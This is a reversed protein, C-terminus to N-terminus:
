GLTTLGIANKIRESFTARDYEGYLKQRLIFSPTANVNEFLASRGAHGDTTLDWVLNMLRNKERGSIMPQALILELREGLEAHDFDSESFRMVLGQGCLEQIIHVVEGYNDLAYARTASIVNVDPLLIGEESPTALMEAAIVGARLIQAYQIVKGVADRAMPVSTVDLAEIVLQALGAFIEAKVCLRDLVNWHEGRSVQSYFTQSQLEPAGLGFVRDRPVFVDDLVVLSDMEDGRAAVPHDYRTAHPHATTERCVLKLGPSAVPITTWVSEQPRNTFITSVLIENAYVAISGATRAGSLWVGEDTERTVRFVTSRDDGARASRSRVGQPEAIVGALLLNNEQAYDQYAVLNDAYKPSYRRFTSLHALLGTQTWSIMDPARGVTGFTEWAFHECCLRRRVLDDPARPTLWSTAVRAGDGRRYTLLESTEQAHQDDYLKAIVDVLGAIAEHTTVDEVREGRYWVERADRLSERYAAGDRVFSDTETVAAM